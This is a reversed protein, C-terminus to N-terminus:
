LIVAEKKKEFKGFNIEHIIINIKADDDWKATIVARSPGHGIYVTVDGGYIQMLLDPRLACAVALNGVQKM